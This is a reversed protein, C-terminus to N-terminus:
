ESAEWEAHQQKIYEGLEIVELNGIPDEGLKHQGDIVRTTPNSKITLLRNLEIMALAVDTHAEKTQDTLVYDPNLRWEKPRWNYVGDITIEPYNHQWLLRYMALQRGYSEYIGKRGSKLDILVKHRQVKKTEKPQGKRQGSKYQEGWFGKVEVDIEAVLDIAGAIGLPHSLMIESALPKLNVKHCFTVWALLDAKLEDLHVMFGVPLREQEIYTQLAVDLKDFDIFGLHLFNSAQIHLFTGYYAREKAYQKAEEYGMSAMWKTLGEPTPSTNKIVSTVSDYFTPDGTEDITFYKRGGTSDCRYLPEPSPILAKDFILTGLDEPKVISIDKM